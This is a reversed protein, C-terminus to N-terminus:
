QKQTILPFDAPTPSIVGRGGGRGWPSVYIEEGEVEKLDFKQKELIM